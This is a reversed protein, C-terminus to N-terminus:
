PKEKEFLDPFKSKLITIVEDIRKVRKEAEKLRDEIHINFDSVNRWSLVAEVVGKLSEKLSSNEDYYLNSMLHASEGAKSQGELIFNLREVEKELEEIRVLAKKWNNYLEDWRMEEKLAANEDRYLKINPHSLDMISRETKELQEIRVLHAKLIPIIKELPFKDLRYFIASISSGLTAEAIFVDRIEKAENVAQEHPDPTTM